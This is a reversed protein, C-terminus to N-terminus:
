ALRIEGASLPTAAVIVLIGEPNWGKLWANPNVSYQELMANEPLEGGEM